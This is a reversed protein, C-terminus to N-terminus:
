WRFGFDSDVSVLKMGDARDNSLQMITQRLVLLEQQKYEPMIAMVSEQDLRDEFVKKAAGYSIYQWWQALDPMSNGSLLETPRVYADLDVRYVQDPIPRITFTNNYFLVSYPKSATYACCQIYVPKYQAPAVTFNITYVGTMYNINGLIVAPNNQAVLDGSSTQYGTVPDLIPVDRLAIGVNNLGISTVTVTGAQIPKSALTGNFALLVGNGTGIQQSTINQPYLNFFQERNQFLLCETGAIFVPPHISTYKNIFNYLPDEPNVINNQYTDVNPLTFFTLTKRLSVTRLHQPFDYLIFINVYDDIQQDTLQAVSPSRTLRRVKTRIQSLTSYSTDPM